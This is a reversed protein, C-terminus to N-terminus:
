RSAAAEGVIVFRAWERPHAEAFDGKEILEKMSIRSAEDRGIEPAGEIRCHGTHHTQRRRGFGVAWHAVLFARAGAYIFARALGSPAEAGEGQPGATNYASLVM